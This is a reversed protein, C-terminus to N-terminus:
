QTNNLQAVNNLETFGATSDGYLTSFRDAGTTDFASVSQRNNAVYYRGATIQLYRGASSSVVGGLAKVILGQTDDIRRLTKSNGDVQTLGTDTYYIDGGVGRTLIGIIGVTYDNITPASASEIRQIPTGSNWDGVLFYKQGITLAIPGIGALLVGHAEADLDTSNKLIMLVNGTTVTGDGNDTVTIPSLTSVSISSNVGVVLSKQQETLHYYEGVAGGQISSLDNHSTITVLEEYSVGDWTYIKKTDKAIYICSLNGSVPFDGFTDFTYVEQAGGSISVWTGNLRAYVVGDAPAELVGANYGKYVNTM